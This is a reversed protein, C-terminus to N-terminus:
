HTKNEYRTELQKLTVWRQAYQIEEDTMDRALCHGNHWIGGKDQCQEAQSIPEAAHAPQQYCVFFFFLSVWLALIIGTLINKILKM